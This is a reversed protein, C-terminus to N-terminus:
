VTVGLIVSTIVNRNVTFQATENLRVPWVNWTINAESTDSCAVGSWSACWVSVDAL